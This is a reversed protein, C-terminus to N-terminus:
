SRQITTECTVESNNIRANHWVHPLHVTYANEMSTARDPLTILLVLFGKM